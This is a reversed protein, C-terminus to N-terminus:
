PRPFSPPCSSALTSSPEARCGLRVERGTGGMVIGLALVIVVVEVGENDVDRGEVGGFPQDLADAAGRIGVVDQADLAEGLDLALRHAKQNLAHARAELVLEIAGPAASSGRCPRRTTM